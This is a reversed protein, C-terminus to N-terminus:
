RSWRKRQDVASVADEFEAVSNWTKESEEIAACISEFMPDALLSHESNDHMASAGYITEAESVRSRSEDNCYGELSPAAAAFAAAADTGPDLPDNSSTWEVLDSSGVIDDM